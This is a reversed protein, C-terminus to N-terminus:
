VPSPGELPRTSSRAQLQRTLEQDVWANLDKSKRIEEESTSRQRVLPVQSPFRPATQLLFSLPLLFAFPVTLRFQLLLAERLPHVAKAMVRVMPSRCRHPVVFRETEAHIRVVIRVRAQPRDILRM